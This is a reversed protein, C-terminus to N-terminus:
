KYKLFLFGPAKDIKFEAQGKEDLSAQSTRGTLIDTLTLKTGPKLFHLAIKAAPAKNNLERFVTLYGEGTDPNHNQLGTWSENDPKSGIPLVYGQYMKGREAKYAKLIPRLEERAAPSLLQTETFFIPSSMLTIALDYGHTSKLADTPAGAPTLDKNQYTLQVKSLNMYRALEWGDRLVQWPEYRVESRVTFAKRNTLYLNGCDRGFYFGMRPPKETVDWNVVASYGTHKIVERAKYYLSDLKDKTSLNAFDLKFAKFDGDDYNAEIAETPATWAHWLGLKVGLQKARARVKGFGSPYDAYPVEVKTGDHLVFGKGSRSSGKAQPRWDKGQWGDDIQLIDVGLDACAELERLVNEERAKYACQEHADEAGWTNAMIFIDREPHVPYRARDFRKLALQADANDGRYFIMWNAWCFRYTGAKLDGPKMGLGTVQIKNGRRVFEGTELGGSLFTHNHSEKVLVIGAGDADLILGSAWKVSGEAPLPEERLAEYPTMDAKLGAHYGFASAARVNEALDLSESTGPGFTTSAKIAVGDPIKLWLQTRLGPLGPYAWIVYKVDLAPYHIEAEVTLHKSTFHEDDDEFAKLSVVKGGGFDGLDWDAASAPKAAAWQRGSAEDHISVTALGKGTWAWTRTVAGTSVTLNDGDTTAAAQQVKADLKPLAEATASAALVAVMPVLRILSTRM